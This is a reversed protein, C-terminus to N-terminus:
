KLLGVKVSNNRLFSDAGTFCRTGVTELREEESSRHPVQGLTSYDIATLCFDFTIVTASFTKRTLGVWRMKTWNSIRRPPPLIDRACWAHTCSLVQSKNSATPAVDLLASVVSRADWNLASTDNTMVRCSRCMAACRQWPLPVVVHQYQCSTCTMMLMMLLLLIVRLLSKMLPCCRMVVHQECAESKLRGQARLFMVSNINVTQLLRVTDAILSRKLFYIDQYKFWM